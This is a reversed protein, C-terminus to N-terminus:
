PNQRFTIKQFKLPSAQELRVQQKSEASVRVAGIRVRRTSSVNCLVRAGFPKALLAASM